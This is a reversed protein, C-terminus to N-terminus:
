VGQTAIPSADSTSGYNIPPQQSTRSEAEELLAAIWRRRREWAPLPRIFTSYTCAVWPYCVIAAIFAYLVYILVCWGAPYPCLVSM